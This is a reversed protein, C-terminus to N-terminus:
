FIRKYLNYKTLKCIYISKFIFFIIKFAVDMLFQKLPFSETVMSDPSIIAIDVNPSPM